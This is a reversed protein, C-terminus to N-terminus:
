TLLATRNRSGAAPMESSYNIIEGDSKQISLAYDPGILTVLLIIRRTPLSRMASKQIEEDQNSYIKLGGSYVAKYLRSDPTDRSKWLTM